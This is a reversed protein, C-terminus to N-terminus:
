GSQLSLWDADDEYAFLNGFRAWHVLTDFMEEYNERPLALIVMERVLDGSAGHDQQQELMAHVDQFLRLKLLQERWIAKREEAEARVFRRGQATLVIPLVEIRNARALAATPVDPMEAGTIIEHLYISSRRPNGPDSTAHGPFPIKSSPEFGAPIAKSSLSAIPWTCWKRSTM